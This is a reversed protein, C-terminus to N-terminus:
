PAMDSMNAACSDCIAEDDNIWLTGPEDKCSVCHRLITTGAFAEKEMWGLSYFFKSGSNTVTILQWGEKLLSNVEEINASEKVTTIKSLQQETM